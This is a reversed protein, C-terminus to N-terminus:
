AGRFVSRETAQRTPGIRCVLLPQIEQMGLVPLPNHGSGVSDQSSRVLVAPFVPCHPGIAANMPDKSLPPHMAVGCACGSAGEADDHVDRLPLMGLLGEPFAFLTEPLHRIRCSHHDTDGTWVPFGCKEILSPKVEGATLHFVVQSFSPQLTDM